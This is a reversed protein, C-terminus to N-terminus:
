KSEQKAKIRSFEAQLVSIKQKASALEEYIISSTQKRLEFNENELISITKKFAELDAKLQPIL